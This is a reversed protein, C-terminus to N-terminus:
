ELPLIYLTNDEPDVALRVASAINYQEQTIFKSRYLL